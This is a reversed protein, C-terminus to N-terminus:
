RKHKTKKIGDEVVKVARQYLEPNGKPMKKLVEQCEFLFLPAFNTDYDTIEISNDIIDAYKITQSESSTRELREAEKAKRKKRNLKPFDDKTYVDTLEIVYNLITIAKEPDMIKMLFTKMEEKEIPTDELVDHLLSAALINVDDTYEKCILMVRIPHVIYRDPTYKRKQDGHAQDAFDKIQELVKEM